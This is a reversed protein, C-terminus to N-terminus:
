KKIRYFYIRAQGNNLEITKEATTDPLPFQHSVVVAGNKCEQMFKEKLKKMTALNLYCYIADAEGLTVKFINKKKIEIRSRTLANQIRALLYPLLSYEVGVLRAHPYKKRLASLFGAKGCGLEYVAANDALALEAVVKDIVFRQSSIFPAFGRFLINYFQATLFALFFFLVLIFILQLFIGLM